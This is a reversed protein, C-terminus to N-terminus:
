PAGKCRVDRRRGFRSAMGSADCGERELDVFNNSLDDDNDLDDDGDDPILCAANFVGAVLTEPTDPRIVTVTGLTLNGVMVEVTITYSGKLKALGTLTYSAVADTGEVGIIDDADADGIIETDKEDALDRAAVIGSPNTTSSFSVEQDDLPNGEADDLVAHITVTGDDDDMEYTLSKGGILPKTGDAGGIVVLKSRSEEMDAPDRDDNGGEAGCDAKNGDPDTTAGDFVGGATTTVCQQWDDLIKNRDKDSDEGLAPTGLFTINITGSDGNPANTGPQTLVFKTAKPPAPPPTTPLMVTKPYATPTQLIQSSTRSTHKRCICMSRGEGKVM